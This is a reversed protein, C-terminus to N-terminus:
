KKSSESTIAIQAAKSLRLAKIAHIRALIAM